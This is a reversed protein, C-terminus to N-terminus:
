RRTHPTKSSPTAKFKKSKKVAIPTTDRESAQPPSTNTPTSPPTSEETITHLGRLAMTHVRTQQSPASQHHPKPLPQQKQPPSFVFAPVSSAPTVSSSKCKGERRASGHVLTPQSFHFSTSSSPSSCDDEKLRALRPSCRVDGESGHSLSMRRALSRAVHSGASALSVHSSGADSSINSDVDTPSSARPKSGSALSSASGQESASKLAMQARQFSRRRVRGVTVDESHASSPSADLHSLTSRASSAYPLSSHSNVSSSSDSPTDDNLTLPTKQSQRTQTGAKHSSIESASHRITSAQSMSPSPSDRSRQSRLRSSLRTGLSSVQSSSKNEEETEDEGDSTEPLSPLKRQRLRSVPQLTLELSRELVSRQHRTLRRNTTYEEMVQQMSSSDGRNTCYAKRKWKVSSGSSKESCSRDRHASDLMELSHGRREQGIDSRRAKKASANIDTMLGIDTTTNRTSIGSMSRTFRRSETVPGLAYESESHAKRFPQGAADSVFRFMEHPLVSLSSTGENNLGFVSIANQTKEKKDDTEIPIDTDHTTNVPPVNLEMTEEPTECVVDLTANRQISGSQHSKKSYIKVDVDMEDDQVSSCRSGASSHRSRAGHKKTCGALNSHVKVVVSNADSNVSSARHQRNEDFVSDASLIVDRCPSSGTKDGESNGPEEEVIVELHNRQVSGGCKSRCVRRGISETESFLVVQQEVSDGTNSSKHVTEEHEDIKDVQDDECQISGERGSPKHVKRECIETEGLPIDEPQVSSARSSRKRVKRECIETEGSPIDEPQVSCARSSPKRVKRDCVETEGLPVDEPQVSSARSSPKRVKRDRIETEGLPIDEPQVSSARSSPKRVERDCIETEGSLVDGPQVSCARSSPKRVKRDCIETEGLPIDEPQVSGARSSPKGVKRECIETEGTPVDEPQVSSARSSPKCVKRECIEAEDSPVDEPQVSSARKSRKCVKGEHTEIKDSPVDEHQVSSKSSPKYVRRIHIESEDSSVDEHRLSGARSSPELVESGCNETEDSPINEDQDSRATSSPKHGKEDHTETGITQVDKHQVSCFKSSSRCVKTERVDTEHSEANACEVSDAGSRPKQVKRNCMGVDSVVAECDVSSIRITSKLVKGEHTETKDAAVYENLGSDAASSLECVEAEDFETAVCPQEGDGTLPESTKPVMISAVEMESLIGQNEVCLQTNCDSRGNSAKPKSIQSAAIEVEFDMVHQDVILALGGVNNEKCPIDVVESTEGENKNNKSIENVVICTEFDMPEKEVVETVCLKNTELVDAASSRVVATSKQDSGAEEMMGGVSDPIGVNLKPEVTAIRDEVLVHEIDSGSDFKSSTKDNEGEEVEQEQEEEEEEKEAEEEEMLAEEEDESEDEDTSSLDGAIHKAEISKQKSPEVKGEDSDSDLIIISGEDDSLPKKAM